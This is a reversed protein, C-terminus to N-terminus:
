KAGRTKKKPKTGAVPIKDLEDVPVVHVPRMGLEHMEAASNIKTREGDDVAWFTPDDAIKVYIKDLRDM